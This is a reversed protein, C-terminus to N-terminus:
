TTLKTVPDLYILHWLSLNNFYGYYTIKTSYCIIIQTFPAVNYLGSFLLCLIQIALFIYDLIPCMEAFQNFLVMVNTEIPELINGSLQLIRGIHTSIVVTFVIINERYSQQLSDNQTASATTYKNDSISTINLLKHYCRYEIVVTAISTCHLTSQVTLLLSQSQHVNWVAM